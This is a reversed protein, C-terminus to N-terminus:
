AQGKTLTAMNGAAILGAHEAICDGWIASGICRDAEKDAESLEDYPVLWSPKPNPQRKAWAIWVERVRRGLRERHEDVPGKTAQKRIACHYDRAPVVGVDIAPPEVWGTFGDSGISAALDGKEITGGRVQGWGEPIEVEYGFADAKIGM